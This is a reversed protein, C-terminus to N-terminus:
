GLTRVAAAAVGRVSVDAEVGALRGLSNQDVGAGIRAVRAHRVRLEVTVGLDALATEPPVPIPLTERISDLSRLASLSPANCVVVGDETWVDFRDDDQEATLSADVTLTRGTM